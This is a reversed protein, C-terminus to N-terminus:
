IAAALASKRSVQSITAHLWAKYAALRPGARAQRATSREDPPQGRIDAEIAYLAAIRQLAEAALPAPGTQTLDYFKRRVHAWCGAEVIHKGYLANFGAFADAQLIGRFGKLHTQPHQGKRDPSYRFLVAPPTGDAAPRDDRVYAWLRGTKTRGAGPALVPVPTDDAHIKAAALGHRALAEALPRLLSSTQGVWDALTSRDLEVGERAYIAAQRYLPLHDA